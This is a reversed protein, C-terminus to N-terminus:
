PTADSKKRAYEPDPSTIWHKARQWGVGLRQFTVRIREISVLRETVGQELCVEAALALTWASTSKGFTRPSQHLIARLREAREPDFIPQVTQPRRSNPRLCALGASHFANILTRVMQLSCGLNRAIESPRQGKSSKSSALLIRCRRMAFADSSRLDAPLAQQEEDTLNRVFLPAKM